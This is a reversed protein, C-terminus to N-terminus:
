YVTGKEQLARSNYIVINLVIYNETKHLGCPLAEDRVASVFDRSLCPGGGFDVEGTKGVM